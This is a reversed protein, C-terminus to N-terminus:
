SKMHLRLPLHPQSGAPRTGERGRWAKCVLRNCYLFLVHISKWSVYDLRRVVFSFLYQRKMSAMSTVIKLAPM